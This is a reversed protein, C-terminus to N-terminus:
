SNRRRAASDRLENRRRACATPRGNCGAPGLRAPRARSGRGSHAGRRWRRHGARRRRRPCRRGLDLRVIEAARERMGETIYERAIILDTNRDTRGRLIVHSHPHGTNYHDVAVWDLKTGLDEEMQQMLRRTVPKLDDYEVGDEALSSSASSTVIATAVSSSPRGM